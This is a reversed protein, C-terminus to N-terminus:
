SKVFYINRLEPSCDLFNSLFECETGCKTMPVGDCDNYLHGLENGEDNFVSPHQVEFEFIWCPYTCQEQQLYFFGFKKFEEFVISIKEPKKIVEPQSRLSIIQLLADFNAQTNRKHLWEELIQDEGPRARNLIGTNTIDFLTYCTIRHSM